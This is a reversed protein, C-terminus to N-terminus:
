EVGFDLLVVSGQTGRGGGGKSDFYFFCYEGPDLAKDPLMRFYGPGKTETKFFRIAKPDTGVIPNSFPHAQKAYLFRRGDVGYISQPDMKILELQGPNDVVMNVEGAPPAYMYFVPQRDGARIAANARPVFAYLATGLFGTMKARSTQPVTKELKVMKRNGNRDETYLYVGPAHPSDPDNPDAVKVVPAPEDHVVPAVVVVPAAEAPKGGLSPDMEHIINSTAGAAALAELDQPNLSMKLNEKHIMDIIIGESVKANLLKVVDNV